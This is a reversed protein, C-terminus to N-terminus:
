WLFIGILGTQYPFHPIVDKSLTNCEQQIDDDKVTTPSLKGIRSQHQLSQLVFNQFHESILRKANAVMNDQQIIDTILPEECFKNFFYAVSGEMNYHTNKILQNEVARLQKIFSVNEAIREFNSAWQKDGPTLELQEASGRRTDKWTLYLLWIFFLPVAIWTIITLNGIFTQFSETLGKAGEDVRFNLWNLLRDELIKYVGVYIPWWRKQKLGSSWISLKQEM